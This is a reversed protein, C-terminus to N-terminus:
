IVSTLDGSSWGEQPLGSLRVRLWFSMSTQIMPELLVQRLATHWLADPLALGSSIFSRWLRGLWGENRRDANGQVCRTGAPPPPAGFGVPVRDAHGQVGGCSPPPGSGM